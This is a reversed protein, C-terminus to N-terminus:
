FGYSQHFSTINASSILYQIKAESLFLITHGLTLSAKFGVFKFDVKLYQPSETITHSHIELAPTSSNTNM